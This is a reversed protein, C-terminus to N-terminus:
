VKYNVKKRVRKARLPKDWGKMQIDLGLVKRVKPEEPIKLLAKKLQKPVKEPVRPDLSLKLVGNVKQLQWGKYWKQNLYYIWNGASFRKKQIKYM